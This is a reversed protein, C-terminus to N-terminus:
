KEGVHIAVFGFMLNKYKVNRWGRKSIRDTLAKATLFNDISLPLYNYAEPQKAILNGFAPIIKKFHISFIFKQFSNDPKMMELSVVKGGPKTIRYFESFLSDVNAVNRLSFATLVGDFSEDKVPLKLGNAEIFNSPHKGNKDNFKEKAKLLFPRCFDLGMIRVGPIVKQASLLFDGTGTAVDLILSQSSYNGAKVARRRWGMDLGLSMVRNMVDYNNDISSFLNGIYTEKEAATNYRDQLRKLKPM